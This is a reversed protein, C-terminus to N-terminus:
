NCWVQIRDNAKYIYLESGFASAISNKGKPRVSIFPTNEVGVFAVDVVYGQFDNQLKINFPDISPSVDTMREISHGKLDSISCSSYKAHAAFNLSLMVIAFGM